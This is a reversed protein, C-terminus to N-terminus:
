EAFVFLVADAAVMDNVGYAVREIVGDKPSLITHEMKMAEMILLPQGKKVPEGAKAFLKVVRGPMLATLRGEPADDASEYHHPDVYILDHRCDDLIVHMADGSRLVLARPLAGVSAPNIVYDIQEADKATKFPFHRLPDFNLRWGRLDNWPSNSEAPILAVDIQEGAMIKRVALAMVDDPLGDVIPLLGAQNQAIFGTDTNGSAYARHHLLRQLFGLNTKCGIVGTQALARQMRRISESRDEGWVILKAIMSDYFV